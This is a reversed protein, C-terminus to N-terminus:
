GGHQLRNSAEFVLLKEDRLLKRLDSCIRASQARSDCLGFVSAGSGTVMVHRCGSARLGDKLRGVEPYEAEVVGELDNLLTLDRGPLPEWVVRGIEGAKFLRGFKNTLTLVNKKHIDFVRKTPVSIGPNAVVTWFEPLPEQPEVLDGRGRCLALDGYLFFPVDSGLGAAIELLEGASLAGDALNNLGLLTTGANSSGGGLGGGMPIRKEVAIRVGCNMGSRELFRQAARFAINGEGHPVDDRNCRVAVGPSDTLEIHLVDTLSITQMLNELNHYGDPREDLVRLFLNIKAPSRLTLAQPSSDLVISQFYSM